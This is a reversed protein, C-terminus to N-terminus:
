SESDDSCSQEEHHSHLIGISENSDESSRDSDSDSDSSAIDSENIMASPPPHSGGTRVAKGLSLPPFPPMHQARKKNLARIHLRVDEPTRIFVDDAIERSTKNRILGAEFIAEEEESWQIRARRKKSLPTTIIQRTPGKCIYETRYYATPLKNKM